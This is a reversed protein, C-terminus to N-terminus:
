SPRFRVVGQSKRGAPSDYAFDLEGREPSWKLRLTLAEGPTTLAQFKLHEVAQFSGLPGFTQVGLRIAWDLQVVGPLVPRGPFHGDFAPHGPEPSLHYIGAAGPAPRLSAPLPIM